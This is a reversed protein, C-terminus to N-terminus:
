PWNIMRILRSLSLFKKDESNVFSKNDERNVFSLLFFIDNKVPNSSMRITCM